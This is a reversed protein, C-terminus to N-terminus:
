NENTFHSSGFIKPETIYEQHKLTIRAKKNLEPLLNSNVAVVNEKIIVNNNIDKNQGFSVTEMFLIKGFQTKELILNQINNLDTKFFDTTEGDFNSGDVNEIVNIIWTHEETEGWNDNLILKIENIGPQSFM